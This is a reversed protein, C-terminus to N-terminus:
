KFQDGSKTKYEAFLEQQRRKLHQYRRFYFDPITRQLCFKRELKRIEIDVRLIEHYLEPATKTSV